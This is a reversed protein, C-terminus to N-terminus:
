TVYPNSLGLITSQLASTSIYTSGLGDISSIIQQNLIYDSNCAITSQVAPSSIYISGIGNVTSALSATSIYRSGLGAFTSMIVSSVSSIYGLTGLVNITSVLNSTTLLPIGQQTFSGTVLTGLTSISGTSSIYQNLYSSGRISLSRATLTEITAFDNSYPFINQITWINSNQANSSVTIYGTIRKSTTGDIFSSGPATAITASSIGAPVRLTIISSYLSRTLLLNTSILSLYSM